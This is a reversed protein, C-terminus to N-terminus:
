LVEQRTVARYLALYDEAMRQCDWLVRAREVAAPLPSPLELLARQMSPIDGPPVATGLGPLITEAVGGVSFGVVPTGCAAAELCVTPFNDQRSCLVLADAATYLVAMHERGSVHGLVTLNDPGGTCRGGAALFRLPLGRCSRALELFLDFGKERSFAPAAFLVVREEPPISLARHLDAAEQRRPRFVTTDIGNAIVTVPIGSLASSAAARRAIWRSCGVM